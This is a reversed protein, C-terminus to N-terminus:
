DKVVKLMTQGVTLYYIGTAFGQFDLSKPVTLGSAVVQGLSNTLIFPRQSDATTINLQGTTPNPYGTVAVDATSTVAVIRSLDTRGDTDVLRLRYYQTQGPLAKDLYGYRALEPNYDLRVVPEFARADPSRELVFHSFNLADTVLWDLQNGDPAPKGGFSVLRVPLASAVSVNLTYKRTEGNATVLLEAPLTQNASGSVTATLNLTQVANEGAITGTPNNITLWNVNTTASYTVATSGSNYLDFTLSAPTGDTIDYSRVHLPAEPVPTPAFGAYTHSTPWTNGRWWVPLTVQDGSNPTTASSFNNGIFLQNRFRAPGTVYLLNATNRLTNGEYLCLDRGVKEAPFNNISLYSGTVVAFAQNRANTITNNRVTHGLLALGDPATTPEWWVAVDIYAQSCDTLQNNIFTNFYNPEISGGSAIDRGQGWVSIGTSVEQIRNGDAVFNVTGEYPQIGSSATGNAAAVEAKGDLSNQYVAVKDLFRGISLTSTADPIVQWPEDVTLTGTAADFATITRSQGLGKGKIVVVVQDSLDEAKTTTLTAGTPTAQSVGSQHISLNYEWLLQEGTNQEGNGPRVALNRTTNNAVYQHHLTGWNGTGVYWRGQGWGDIKTNDLDQCTSNTMSFGNNGWHHLALGTDNTLYFQCNDIFIQRATGLFNATTTLSANKLQIHSSGHLDFCPSGKGLLTVNNYTIHDSFRIYTLTNITGNLGIRGNGDFTLNEFAIDTNGGNALILGYTAVTASPFLTPHCRIISETRSEGLLKVGSNPYFGSSTTYVGKPFYVTAPQNRNAFNIAEIITQYDDTVGDGKAGYDTKVNIIRAAFNPATRVTLTLPGSWGYSGGSGNHTWVEYNGNAATAPITFDICYPNSATVTPVYTTGTTKHKLYVYSGLNRGHVASAEGPSADDPGVWWAETKNIPVPYGIGSANRPYLLLMGAPLAADLTVAAKDTQVTQISADKRTGDPAVAEFRVDKGLDTGSFTSLQFGTLLVTQGPGVQKSWEAIQPAGAPPTPTGTLGFTAAAGPPTPEPNPKAFFRPAPYSQALLHGATLLLLWFTTLRFM